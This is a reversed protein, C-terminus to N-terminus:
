FQQADDSLLENYIKSSSSLWDSYEEYFEEERGPYRRRASEFIEMYQEDTVEPYETSFDCCHDFDTIPPAAFPDLPEEPLHSFELESYQEEERQVQNM